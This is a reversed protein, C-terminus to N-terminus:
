KCYGVFIARIKKRGKGSIGEGVETGTRGDVLAQGQVGTARGNKGEAKGTLIHHGRGKRRGARQKDMFWTSLKKRGERGETEDEM